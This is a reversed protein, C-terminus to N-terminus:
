QSANGCCSALLEGAASCQVKTNNCNAVYKERLVQKMNNYCNSSNERYLCMISKYLDDEKKSYSTTTKALMGVVLLGPIRRSSFM